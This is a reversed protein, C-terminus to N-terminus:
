SHVHLHYQWTYAGFSCFLPHLQPEYTMLQQSGCSHELLPTFTYVIVQLPFKSSTRFLLQKTQVLPIVHRVLKQLVHVGVNCQTVMDNAWQSFGPQNIFSQHNNPPLSVRLGLYTTKKKFSFQVKVHVKCVIIGIIEIIIQELLKM